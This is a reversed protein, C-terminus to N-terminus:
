SPQSWSVVLQTLIAINPLCKTTSGPKPHLNQIFTKGSPQSWSVVLQTMIAINLLCKTTSGPKPHLNQIFTKCSPQSWSVVLQTMIAINLLCKTTSGPKPHLNQIFRKSSPKLHIDLGPFNLLGSAMASHFSYGTQFNEVMSNKIPLAGGLSAGPHSLPFFIKGIERQRAM